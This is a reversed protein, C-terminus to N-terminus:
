HKDTKEEMGKMYVDLQKMDGTCLLLSKLVRRCISPQNRSAEGEEPITDLRMEDAAM